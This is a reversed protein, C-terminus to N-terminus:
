ETEHPSTGPIEQGGPDVNREENLLVIGLYTGLTLLRTDEMKTELQKNTLLTGM